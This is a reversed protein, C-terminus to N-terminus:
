DDALLEDIEAKEIVEGKGTALNMQIFKVEGASSCGSGAGSESRKKFYNNEYKSYAKKFDNMFAKADSLDVFALSVPTFEVYAETEPQPAAEEKEMNQVFTEIDRVIEKLSGEWVDDTLNLDVANFLDQAERLTLAPKSCIIMNFDGGTNEVPTFMCNEGISEKVVNIDSSLDHVGVGKDVTFATLKYSREVQVLEMHVEFTKTEGTERNRCRIGARGLDDVGTVEHEYNEDHVLWNDVEKGREKLKRRLLLDADRLLKDKLLGM